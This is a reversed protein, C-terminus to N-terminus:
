VINDGFVCGYSFLSKTDGSKRYKTGMRRGGGESQRTKEIQYDVSNQSIDGSAIANNVHIDNEHFLTSPHNM